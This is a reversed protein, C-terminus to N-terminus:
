IRCLNDITQPRLKRFNLAGIQEQLRSLVDIDARTDGAAAKLVGQLVAIDVFQVLPRLLEEFFELCHRLQGVDGAVQQSVRGPELDSDVAILRRAETDRRLRDVVREVVRKPLPLDAAMLFAPWFIAHFRVIEKGILHLDAPWLEHGENDKQGRVATMYAVLADFWVYMVQSADGPVTIGWGHARATSRSISFDALGMRIFSLVENRRTPPLIFCPISM